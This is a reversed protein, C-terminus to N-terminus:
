KVQIYKEREAFTFSIFTYASRYICPISQTITNILNNATVMMGILETIDLYNTFFDEEQVNINHVSLGQNDSVKQVKSVKNPTCIQLYKVKAKVWVM